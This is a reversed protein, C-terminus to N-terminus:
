PRDAEQPRENLMGLKEAFADIDDFGNVAIRPTYLGARAVPAANGRDAFLQTYGALGLIQETRSDMAGYPPAVTRVEQGTVKELLERSGVAEELLAASSMLDAATHTHLHSGFTCGQKSLEDIQEWSMLPAPEGYAADWDSTAGVKGTPVFVHASFGNRAILPWATDYFDLYADDFSLIIPRGRLSGRSCAAEMWQATTISRFGRRRLFRLQHELTRASVRYASLDEPGEEAVRHYMLVPITFQREQAYVQPRTRIAGNWVVNQAVSLELDSGLPVEHTDILVGSDTKRFLDIRYLDTTLTRVRRLRPEAEFTSVITAAAFPDNWDFGTHSPDDTVEYAHAHLFYGGAELADAVRGALLELKEKSEMYYLVEACVILDWPGPLAASFFDSRLYEVNPLSRCRHAARELAKSSIDVALLKGVRAALGLTFHGEACALEMAREFHQEPLMALTREYKLQEYPSDYNWPNETAFFEDWEAYLDRTNDGAPSPEAVKQSTGVHSTGAHSSVSPVTILGRITDIQTVFSRPVPVQSLPTGRSTARHMAQLAKRRLVTAVRWVRAALYSSRENALLKGLVKRAMRRVVISRLEKGSLPGFVVVPFRFLGRPRLLPVNFVVVDTQRVPEYGGLLLRPTLIVGRASELEIDHKFDGLNLLEVELARLLDRELGANNMKAAVARVFSQVGPKLRPWRNILDRLRCQAGLMLGDLLWSTMGTAAGMLVPDAEVEDLLPRGDNEAGIIMGANWIACSFLGVMPDGLAAGSAYQAVPGPVRPDASRVRLMVVYADRLMQRGNKTLSAFNSNWYVALPKRVVAFETGARAVRLWLDWDENTALATDFGGVRAIVSRKVMIAHIATPPGGACTLFPDQDMPPADYFATHRGDTGRRRYGCCVAGVAPRRAAAESMLTLYRRDLTDDSDLFVIWEGAAAAIGANRAASAGSQKQSLTRVRSDRAAWAQALARTDDTSGDDVVIAEWDSRKQAALSQLARSLTGASNFAPMVVSFHPKSVGKGINNAYDLICLYSAGLM